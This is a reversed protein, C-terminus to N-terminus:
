ERKWLVPTNHQCTTTDEAYQKQTHQIIHTAHREFFENYIVDLYDQFSLLTLTYNDIITKPM